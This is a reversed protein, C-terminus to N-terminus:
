RYVFPDSPPAIRAVRDPILVPGDADAGVIGDVQLWADDGIRRRTLRVVIPMADARCCTIAYRVLAAHRGDDVLRILVTFPGSDTPLAIDRAFLRRESFARMLLPELLDAADPAETRLTRGSLADPTTGLLAAGSGNVAAVRLDADVVFLADDWGEAFRAWLDM